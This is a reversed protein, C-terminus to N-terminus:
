SLDLKKRIKQPKRKIKPMKCRKRHLRHFESLIQNLKLSIQLSFQWFKINQRSFNRFFHLIQSSFKSFKEPRLPAFSHLDQLALFISCFAGKRAITATSVSLFSGELTLCNSTSLQTLSKMPPVLKELLCSRLSEAAIHPLSVERGRARVVDKGCLRGHSNRFQLSTILRLVAIRRRHAWVLSSLWSMNVIDIWKNLLHLPAYWFQCAHNFIDVMQFCASSSTVLWRQSCSSSLTAWM